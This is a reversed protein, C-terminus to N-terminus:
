LRAELNENSVQKAAVKPASATNYKQAAATNYQQAAKQQVAIMAAYDNSTCM